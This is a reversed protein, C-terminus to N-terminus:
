RKTRYGLSRLIEEARALQDGQLEIEGEKCTGGVGCRAKLTGALDALPEEGLSLGTVVTVLKGKKRKELKLHAVGANEPAISAPTEIM